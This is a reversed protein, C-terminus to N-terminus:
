SQPQGAPQLICALYVVVRAPRIANSKQSADANALWRVFPQKCLEHVAVASADVVCLHKGLREAAM